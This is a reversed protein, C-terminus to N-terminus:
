LLPHAQVSDGRAWQSGPGDTLPPCGTPAPRTLRRSRLLRIWCDTDPAAGPSAPGAAGETSWDAPGPLLPVRRGTRAAPGASVLHPRVRAASPQATRGDGMCPAAGVEGSPRPDGGRGRRPEGAAAPPRRDARVESLEASFHRGGGCIQPPPDLAPGVEFTFAVAVTRRAPLVDAIIDEVSAQVGWFDDMLTPSLKRWVGTFISVGGM